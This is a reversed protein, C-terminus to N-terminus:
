AHFDRFEIEKQILDAMYITGTALSATILM